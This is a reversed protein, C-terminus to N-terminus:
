GGFLGFLGKRKPKDFKRLRATFRKADVLHLWHGGPWEEVQSQPMRTKLWAGYGPAAGEAMLVLYPVKIARLVDDVLATTAQLANADFMGACIALYTDRTAKARAAKIPGQLAAPVHNFGMASMMGEVAGAYDGTFLADKMPALASGFGSLELPQDIVLVGRVPLQSSGLTAVVGGLSHGVLLPKDLKLGAILAGLDGVMSPLAVNAITTDLAYMIATASRSGGHGALDLAVVDHDRALGDAVPGWSAHSEGIGHILVLTRGRGARTYAVTRGEGGSLTQLAAM